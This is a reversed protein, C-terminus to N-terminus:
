FPVEIGQKGERVVRWKVLDYIAHDYYNWKIVPEFHATLNKQRRHETTEIKPVEGFKLQKM